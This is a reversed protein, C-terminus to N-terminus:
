FAIGSDDGSNNMYDGFYKKDNKDTPDVFKTKDGIWKLCATGVSGARYKAFIIESDTGNAIMDNDTIEFGYYQPRYIFKVIDADQEIAGSERLDSLRPRKDTRKEVERSLQSLLIVPIQLEKALLKMKRSISTMEEVPNKKVGDVMLQLYDVVLLKIGFLRVWLRAQSIVDIVDSKASDDIYVPYKEMRYANDLYTQFYSTKEFGKKLLQSLHFNTDLAVMRATLEIIDMELSIMGVPINQKINELVTRLVYSTKGMGPRAGIVILNGAKYGGTHKDISAFGTRIGDIYNEEQNTLMEVRKGLERLAEPFDITSRGSLVFENIKDFENSWKSMLELIDTTEDYALATIRSNFEIIKRAMMKQVLIRSYFESHAGSSIKQTLGILYFDGGSEELKGFSKLKQSVTLLDIPENDNYLSQIAKFINRHEEKFFVEPSKLVPICVDAVSTDILLAGLVAQELDLAQPLIKAPQM